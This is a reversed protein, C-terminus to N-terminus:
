SRPILNKYLEIWRQAIAQPSFRAAWTLCNQAQSQYFENDYLLRRMALSAAESDTAPVYVAANGGAEELSSGQAALVPIGCAISELVPLGFGEYRSLYVSFRAGRYLETLEETSGPQRWIISDSLKGDRIQALIKKRDSGGTGTLVLAPRDQPLQSYAEIVTQYNKRADCSGVALIYQQPLSNLQSHPPWGDAESVLVNTDPNVSNTSDQINNLLAGQALPSFDSSVGQYIVQIENRPIKLLEV